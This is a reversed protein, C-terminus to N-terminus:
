CRVYISPLHEFYGMVGFSEQGQFPINLWAQRSPCLYEGYKLFPCAIGFCNGMFCPKAVFSDKMVKVKQFCFVNQVAFALPGINPLQSTYPLLSQYTSFFSFPANV